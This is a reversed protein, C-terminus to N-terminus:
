WGLFTLNSASDMVSPTVREGEGARYLARTPLEKQEVAATVAAQALGDPLAQGQQHPMESRNTADPGAPAETGKALLVAQQEDNSKKHQLM